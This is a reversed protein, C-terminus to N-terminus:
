VAAEANYTRIASLLRLTEEPTGVTIRLCGSCGPERSRDRVIVGCSILHSYM